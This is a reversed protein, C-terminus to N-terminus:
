MSLSVIHTRLHGHEVAHILLSPADTLPPEAADGLLLPNPTCLSGCIQVVITGLTGTVPRHVHGCLVALPRTRASELVQILPGENKCRIADIVDIGTLFPPQHMFLLTPESAKELESQLWRLHPLADGYNAHAVTVDLGILRMNGLRASFHMPGSRDVWATRSGLAARLLDPNDSNGPLIFVPCRLKALREAIARYGPVYDGNVLDGTIVLADLAIKDLWAIAKDLASLMSDGASAHIDSVQAILM